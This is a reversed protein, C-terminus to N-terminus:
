ALAESVALGLQEITYPKRIFSGAGLAQVKKVEANESFGSAIIARQGPRDAIIKEYTQRGNIGPAMIMDLIILDVAQNRVFALAEEGSSVTEVKYNLVSLMQSGIDCQQKEDDVLLIREGHGQLQALGVSGKKKSPVKSSVPFYLLFSTGQATSNVVITGNHDQVTNWVIALGLGTGSRGLVKKSYFPEFIHSIDNKAIGQGTDTIRIVAYEGTPMYQNEAVPTDIYQNKTEVHIIGSGVIAEASNILLNMICKRIHIASCSINHLDPELDTKVLVEPHLSSMKKGEPSELYEIILDNLSRIEHSGAVGRAVTLLDAVVESARQGSEKIIRLTKSLESNGPFKNLLLDPYSVVGSLINNLDHAVGGAMLGIAEMKQSQALKEQTKKLETIDFYTLMRWGDPLVVCQYQLIIGDKRELIVPAISGQRIQAEREDMYREFDDDSVKYMNNYRNYEIVERMSPHSDEFDMPVGWLECFTRNVIRSHLQDDIFLIGCNITNMVASLEDVTKELEKETRTRDSIEQILKQNTETLARTKESVLGTLYAKHRELENHIECSRNFYIVFSFIVIFAATNISGSFPALLIWLHQLNYFFLAEKCLHGFSRAVAFFIFSLTLLFLYYHFTQDASKKLM